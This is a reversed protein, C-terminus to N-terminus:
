ATAAEQTAVRVLPFGLLELLRISEQDTKASTIVAIQLGRIRDIQSYDIEPFIIHERIGLSYNGHGDFASRSIGRFDRIRPLSANVLKDLFNYM